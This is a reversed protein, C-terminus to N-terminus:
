AAVTTGTDVAIWNTGNSIVLVGTGSGVGEGSKRGDTAYIMQNAPSASGLSAVDSSAIGLALSLVQSLTASRSSGGATEMEFLDGGAIATAATINSITVNAM